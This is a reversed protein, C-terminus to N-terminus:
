IYIFLNIEKLCNFLNQKISLVILYTLFNFSFTPSFLPRKTQTKLCINEIKLYYKM